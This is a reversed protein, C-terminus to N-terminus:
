FAKILHIRKIPHTPEVLSLIKQNALFHIEFDPNSIYNNFDYLITILFWVLPIVKIRLHTSFMAVQHSM